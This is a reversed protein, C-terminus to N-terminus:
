KGGLFPIIPIIVESIPLTSESGQTFTSNFTICHNVTSYSEPTPPLAPCQFKLNLSLGHHSYLATKLSTLRNCHWIECPFDWQLNGTLHAGNLYNGPVFGKWNWILAPFNSGSTWRLSLSFPDPSNHKALEQIKGSSDTSDLGIHEWNLYSSEAELGATASIKNLATALWLKGQPSPAWQCKM